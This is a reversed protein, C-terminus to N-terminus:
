WSGNSSKQRKVKKHEAKSTPVNVVQEREQARADLRAKEQM